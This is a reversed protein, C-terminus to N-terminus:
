FPLKPQWESIIKHNRKIFKAKKAVNEFLAFGFYKM